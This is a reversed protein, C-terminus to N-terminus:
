FSYSLSGLFIFEVCFFKSEKIISHLKGVNTSAVGVSVLATRNSRAIGHVVRVCM